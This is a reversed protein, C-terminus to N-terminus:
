PQKNKRDDDLRRKIRLLEEPTMKDERGLCCLYTEGQYVYIYNHGKVPIIRIHSM